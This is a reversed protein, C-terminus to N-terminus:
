VMYKQRLLILPYFCIFQSNCETKQTLKATFFFLQNFILSPPHKNRLTALDCQNFVHKKFVINNQRARVQALCNRLQGPNNEGTCGVCVILMLMLMAARGPLGLCAPSSARPPPPRLPVVVRRPMRSRFIVTPTFSCSSGLSQPTLSDSELRKIFEAQCSSSTGLCGAAVRLMMSVHRVLLGVDSGTIEPSSCTSGCQKHPECTPVRGFLQMYQSGTFDMTDSSNQSRHSSLHPHTHTHTICLGM